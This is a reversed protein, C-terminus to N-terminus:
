TLDVDPRWFKTPANIVVDGAFIREVLDRVRDADHEDLSTIQGQRFRPIELAQAFTLNRSQTELPQNLPRIGRNAGILEMAFTSGGRRTAFLLINRRDGQEHRLVTSWVAERVTARVARKLYQPDHRAM